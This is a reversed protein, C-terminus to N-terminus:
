QRRIKLERSCGEAPHLVRSRSRGKPRAKLSISTAPAWRKRNELTPGKSTKRTQYGPNRRNGCCTARNAKPEPLSTSDTLNEEAPSEYWTSRDCITFREATM